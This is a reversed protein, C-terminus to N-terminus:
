QGYGDGVIKILEYQKIAREIPLDPLIEVKDYKFKTPIPSVKDKKLVGVKGLANAREELMQEAQQFTEKDIIEPYGHEGIYRKNKLMRRAKAHNGKIGAKKLSEQQSCGELYTQFLVKVQEAEDEKVVYEGDKIEYGYAIKRIM